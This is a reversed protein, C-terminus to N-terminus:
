KEEKSSQEWLGLADLACRCITAPELDSIFTALDHHDPVKSWLSVTPHAKHMLRGFLEWQDANMVNDRLYRLGAICANLDELWNPFNGKLRKGDPTYWAKLAVKAGSATITSNKWVYGLAEAMKVRMSNNTM